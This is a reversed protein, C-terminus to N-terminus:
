VVVGKQKEPKRGINSVWTNILAGCQNLSHNPYRNKFKGIELFLSDNNIHDGACRRFAQFFPDDM